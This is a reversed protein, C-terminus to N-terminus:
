PLVACLSHAIHVRPAYVVDSKKYDSSLCFMSIFVGNIEMYSIDNHPPRLGDTKNKHSESKYRFFYTFYPFHCETVRMDIPLMACLVGSPEARLRSADKGDYKM